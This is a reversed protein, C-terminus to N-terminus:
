HKGLMEFTSKWRGKGRPPMGARLIIELTKWFEEYNKENKKLIKEINKYKGATFNNQLQQVTSPSMHLLQATRYISNGEILMMIVAFRKAIMIKEEKGLLEDLFTNTTRTDLKTITKSLQVYLQKLHNPKLQQKSINTM